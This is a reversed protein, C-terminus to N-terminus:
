LKEGVSEKGSLIRRFFETEIDVTYKSSNKCTGCVLNTYFKPYYKGFREEYKAQFEESVDSPIACDLVTLIEQILNSRTLEVGNKKIIIEKVLLAIEESGSLVSNTELNKKIKEISIMGLIQNYKLINPISSIFVYEYDEFPITIPYNYEYFPPLDQEWITLSDPQILEDLTIKYPSKQKCKECEVERVGLHEYTSKYCAWLLCVKDINSSTAILDEYKIKVEQGDEIIQTHKYLCKTMEREYNQPSLIATKLVQHDGLLFSTVVASKRAIPLLMESKRIDKISLAISLFSNDIM